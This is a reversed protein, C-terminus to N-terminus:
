FVCIFLDISLYRVDNTKLAVGAAASEVSYFSAILLSLILSHRLPM